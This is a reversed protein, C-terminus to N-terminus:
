LTTRLGRTAADRSHTRARTHERRKARRGDHQKGEGEAKSEAPDVAESQVERAADEMMADGGMQLRAGLRSRWRGPQRRGHQTFLYESPIM